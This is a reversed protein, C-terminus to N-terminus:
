AIRHIYAQPITGLTNNTADWSEEITEMHWQWIEGNIERTTTVNIIHVTLEFRDGIQFESTIDGRIAFPAPTGILSKCELFTFNDSGIYSINNLIDRIILADGHNLSSLWAWYTKNATDEYTGYDNYFQFTNMEVTKQQDEDLCGSFGM